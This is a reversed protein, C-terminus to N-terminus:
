MGFLEISHQAVIDADEAVRRAGSSPVRLLMWGAEKPTFRGVGMEAMENGPEWHPLYQNMLDGHTVLLVTGPGRREDCLRPIARKTRSVTDGDTTGMGTRDPWVVRVGDGAAAAAQEHSMLDILCGKAARRASLLCEQLGEDVLVSRLGLSRCVRAATQVCRRYPSCVVQRVNHPRLLAAAEDVRRLLDEQPALPCDHPRAARDPWAEDPVPETVLHDNDARVGHRM